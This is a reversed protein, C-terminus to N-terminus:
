REEAAVNGEETKKDVDQLLKTLQKKFPLIDDQITDWIRKLNVGFYEHILIDRTGSIEKWPIESYQDKVKQPIHKVAEGIIEFRRIISDQLQINNYFEGESIDKTYEEIRGISELIDEVFVGFDRKM